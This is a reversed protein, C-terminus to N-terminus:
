VRYKGNDAQEVLEEKRKYVLWLSRFVVCYLVAGGALGLIIATYNEDDENQMATHNNENKSKLEKVDERCSARPINEKPESLKEEEGCIALVLVTFSTCPDLHVTIEFPEPSPPQRNLMGRM